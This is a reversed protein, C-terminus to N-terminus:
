EGRELAEYEEVCLNLYELTNCFWNVIDTEEQLNNPLEELNEVDVGLNSFTQKVKDISEQSFYEDLISSCTLISFLKLDKNM